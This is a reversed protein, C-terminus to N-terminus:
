PATVIRAYRLLKESVVPERRDSGDAVWGSPTIRTTIASSSYRMRVASSSTSDLSPRTLITAEQASRSESSAATSSCVGSTTSVSM